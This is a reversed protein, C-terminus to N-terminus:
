MNDHSHKDIFNYTSQKIKGVFCFFNYIPPKLTHQLRVHNKYRFSLHVGLSANVVNLQSAQYFYM